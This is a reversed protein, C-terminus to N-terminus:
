ALELPKKTSSKLTSSVHEFLNQEIRQVTRKINSTPIIKDITFGLELILNSVLDLRIEYGLNITFYSM